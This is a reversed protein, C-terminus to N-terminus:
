LDVQIKSRMTNLIQIRPKFHRIKRSRHNYGYCHIMYGRDYPIRSENEYENKCTNYQIRLTMLSQWARHPLLFNYIKFNSTITTATGCNKLKRKNQHDDNTLVFVSCSVYQIM